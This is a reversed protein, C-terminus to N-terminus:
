DTAANLRASVTHSWEYLELAENEFRWREDKLAAREAARDIIAQEIRQRRYAKKLRKREAKDNHDRGRFRADNRSRIEEHRWTDFDVWGHARAWSDSTPFGKDIHSKPLTARGTFIEYSRSGKNNDCVGCAPVRNWGGDPGGLIRPIVHDRGTATRIRGDDRLV